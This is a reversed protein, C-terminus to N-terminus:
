PKQSDPIAAARPLKTQYIPRSFSGGATANTGATVVPLRNGVLIKAKERNRARIRPSARPHCINVNHDFM